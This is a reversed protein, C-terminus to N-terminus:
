GDGIDTLIDKVEDISRVMYYLGGAKKIAQGIAVQEPRLKQGKRKVELGIFQGKLCCLIDPLGRPTYKPLARFRNDTWVPINNLRFFFLDKRYALYDCIASVIQSETEKM